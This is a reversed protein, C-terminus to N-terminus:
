TNFRLMDSLMARFSPSVANSRTAFLAGLGGSGWEFSGGRLSVSFSMDSPETPVGLEQPRPPYPNAPPNTPRPSFPTLTDTPGLGCPPPPTRRLPSAGLRPM